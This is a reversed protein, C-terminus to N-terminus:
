GRLIIPATESVDIAVAFDSSFMRASGRFNKKSNQKKFDWMRTYKINKLLPPAGFKGEKEM